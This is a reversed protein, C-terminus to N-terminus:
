EPNEHSGKSKVTVDKESPTIYKDILKKIMGISQFLSALQKNITDNEKLTQTINESSEAVNDISGRFKVMTDSVEKSINNANKSIGPAEDLIKDFNERNEEIIKRINKVSFFLDKLLLVLYYLIVVVLAWLVFIGIDKLTFSIVNTM